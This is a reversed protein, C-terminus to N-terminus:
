ARTLSLGSDFGMVAVHMRYLRGSVWGEAARYELWSLLGLAIASRNYSDEHLAPIRLVMRYFGRVAPRIQRWRLPWVRLRRVDAADLGERGALADATREALAAVESWDTLDALGRLGLAWGM